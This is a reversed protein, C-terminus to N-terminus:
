LSAFALEFVVRGLHDTIQSPADSKPHSISDHLLLKGLGLTFKAHQLM